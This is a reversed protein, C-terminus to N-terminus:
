GSQQREKQLRGLLEPLTPTSDHEARVNGRTAHVTLPRRFIIKRQEADLKNADDVCKKWVLGRHLHLVHIKPVHSVYNM